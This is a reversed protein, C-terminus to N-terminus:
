FLESIMYSNIIHQSQICYPLSKQLLYCTLSCYYHYQEGM